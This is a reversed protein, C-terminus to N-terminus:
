RMYLSIASEFMGKSSSCRLDCLCLKHGPPYANMSDTTLKYVLHSYSHLVVTSKLNEM